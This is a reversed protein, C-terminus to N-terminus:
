NGRETSPSPTLLLPQLPVTYLQPAKPSLPFFYKPTLL